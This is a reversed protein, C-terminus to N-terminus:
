FIEFCPRLFPGVQLSRTIFKTEEGKSANLLREISNRKRDQSKDGSEKAISLFKKFVEQITLSDFGILVIQRDKCSKAVSGLDGEAEYQKKIRTIDGGGSVNAIAKILIADGIGLELGEHSPGVQNVCLYVAPLLDQPTTALISRFTETLIRTIELRKTTQEIKLFTDSLVKYPVSQGAVWSAAELADFQLYSKAM